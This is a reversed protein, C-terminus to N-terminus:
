VNLILWLFERKGGSSEKRKSKGVIEVEDVSDSRRRTPAIVVSKTLPRHLSESYGSVKSESTLLVKDRASQDHVNKAHRLIAIIDGMATIGMERLYDKNLDLLMDIQIRNEVFVHAYTAATPSPIGAANFFKM